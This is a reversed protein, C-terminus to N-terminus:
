EVVEATGEIVRGEGLARAQRGREILYDLDEDSLEGLRHNHDVTGSIQVEEVFMGLHKGILEAARNVVAGNYSYLSLRSGTATWSQPRKVPGSSTRVASSLPPYM